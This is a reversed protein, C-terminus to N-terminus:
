LCEVPSLCPSALKRLLCSIWDDMMVRRVKGVYVDSIRLEGRRRITTFLSQSSSQFM